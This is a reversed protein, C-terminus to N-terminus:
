DPYKRLEPQWRTAVVRDGITFRMLDEGAELPGQYTSQTRSLLERVETGLLVIHSYAALKPKVRSFVMGAEEPSTHHAAVPRLQPLKALQESMAFVEHILLDTGTAHRILNEDFKTDGSITVSRAGYDIRYGVSPKILDGHDVAFATVRVGAEDFVVRDGHFDHVEIQTAAAPIQEDAQRILVDDSFAEALGKAIKAVGSPATTGDSPGWLRMAKARSGFPGFIYGTMWLDPLGAVHDSHYHTLFVADIGKGSSLGLQFLRVTVGRGADFLLNLGGVQVLTAPGFRTPSPMPAGTGLLTVVIDKSIPPKDEARATDCDPSLVALLAAIGALICRRTTTGDNGAM